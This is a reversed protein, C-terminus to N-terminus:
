ASHLRVTWRMGSGVDTVIAIRGEKHLLIPCVIPVIGDEPFAFYKQRSPKVRNESILVDPLDACREPASNTARMLSAVHPITRGSTAGSMRAVRASYAFYKQLALKVIIGFIM